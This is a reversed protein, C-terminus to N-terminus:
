EDEKGREDSRKKRMLKWSAENTYISGLFGLSKELEPYVSHHLLMTDQECNAPRIGMKYMRQLDYLGNQFLKPIPHECIKKVLSWARLEEQLTDYYSGSPKAPDNFQIVLAYDTKYSFSIDTIMPGSTETDIALLSAERLESIFQEIREFSPNIEITRKPRIIEPFQSEKLAKILDVIVIPRAEWNRLIYSPHYTPLVKIGPCLISEAIYGRINKMTTQQLMAWSATNGLTIVLNPKITEIETKLRDLEPLYEPMLYKGIGKGDSTIPPLPYNKGGVEKKMGCLSQIKNDEPHLCLSNTLFVPQESWYKKMVFPTPKHIGGFEDKVVPLPAIGPWKCDLLQEAFEIGSEGVLPSQTINENRGWAEAVFVVKCDRPGSSHAFPPAAVHM